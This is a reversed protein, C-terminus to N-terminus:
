EPLGNGTGFGPGHELRAMAEVAAELRAFNSGINVKVKRDGKGHYILFTPTDVIGHGAVLDRM